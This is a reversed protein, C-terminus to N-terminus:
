PKPKKAPRKKPAPKKPTVRAPTEPATGHRGEYHDSSTVDPTYGNREM